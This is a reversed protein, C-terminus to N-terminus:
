CSPHERGSLNILSSSKLMHNGAAMKAVGGARWGGGVGVRVGHLSSPSSHCLLSLLALLHFSLVVSVTIYKSFGAGRGRIVCHSQTERDGKCIGAAMHSFEPWHCLDEMNKVVVVGVQSSSTSDLLPSQPGLLPLSSSSIPKFGQMVIHFAM